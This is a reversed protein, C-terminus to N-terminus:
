AALTVVRDQVDRAVQAARDIVPVILITPIQEVDSRLSKVQNEADKRITRLEREVRTRNRKVEREVRNRRQKLEREVRTRNKKVERQARTRATVGRKELKTLEKEAAERNGYKARLDGLTEVVTDRATLVAGVQVYAAKEAYAVALEVPTEPTKPAPKAAIPKRAAAPRRKATAPKRRPTATKTTPTTAM